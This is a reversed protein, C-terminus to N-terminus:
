VGCGAIYPNLDRDKCKNIWGYWASIGQQRAIIKACNVSLSIGDSLLDSCNIKCGNSTRGPTRGDYCWYRSNIQFIGYDTSGDTNHNIAQTNYSSESNTLCVWDALSVGTDVDMGYAKLARALECREFIKANAALILLLFVIVKM